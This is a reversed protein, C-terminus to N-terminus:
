AESSHKALPLAESSRQIAAKQSYLDCYIVISDISDNVSHCILTFCVGRKDHGLREMTQCPHQAGLM